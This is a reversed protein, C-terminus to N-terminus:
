AAETLAPRAAYDRDRSWVAWVIRALKNAVAVTAKNHGRRTQVTLAWQQLHTLPRHKAHARHAALLVARAGHTLLCRLYVDGMTSIAGLRRRQASSRENPTLGLGSAFRRARTFTHIHGVTATLATATLLGIGPITMLRQVIPASAAIHALERELAALDAELTRVEEHLRAVVARLRSPIPTNADSLLQPILTLAAPAGRPISVGHEQLFGRMANLRATRTAMWEARVRHLAQREQHAVTKITVPPIGGSRVAELLAEADTRDTTNRRV